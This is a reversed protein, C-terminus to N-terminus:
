ASEGEEAQTETKPEYPHLKMRQKLGLTFLFSVEDREMDDFDVASMFLETVADELERTRPYRKEYQEMKAIMQPWLTKLLKSDLKLGNLRKFFPTNQDYRKAQAALLEDCYVGILFPLKRANGAFFERHGEFYAEYRAHMSVEKALFSRRGDLLGRKLLIDFWLLGQVATATLPRDEYHLFRLHRNIQRLLLGADIPNGMLFARLTEFFGQRFRGEKKNEPFISKLFSLRFTVNYPGKKASYGQFTPHRQAARISQWLDRNYRPFLDEITVLLNFKAKDEEYFYLSFAANFQEDALIELILQEEQANEDGVQGLARRQLTAVQELFEGAAASEPPGLFQPLLFYRYGCLQFRLHQEVFHKGRLLVKMAAFSVPLNKWAQRLDFGGAVVSMETKVAYCNYLSSFGMVEEAPQQTFACVQNHGLYTKGNHSYYDAYPDGALNHKATAMTPSDALLRGDLKLSLLVREQRDLTEALADSVAPDKQILQAVGKLDNFAKDKLAGLLRKGPKSQALGVAPTGPFDQTFLDVTPFKPTFNGSRSQFLTADLTTDPDVEGSEVGAFTWHGTVADRNFCLLRLLTGKYERNVLYPNPRTEELHHSAMQGVHFFGDFM